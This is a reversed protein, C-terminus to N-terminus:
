QDVGKQWLGVSTLREGTVFANGHIDTDVTEVAVLALRAGATIQEHVNTIPVYLEGVRGEFMQVWGVQLEQAAKPSPKSAQGWLLRQYTIESNRDENATLEHDRPTTEGPIAEWHLEAETTFVRVSYAGEPMLLGGWPGALSGDTNLRLWQFSQAAMWWGIAAGAQVSERHRDAFAALAETANM